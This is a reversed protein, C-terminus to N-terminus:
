IGDRMDELTEYCYSYHWFGKYKSLVAWMFQNDEDDIIEAIYMGGYKIIRRPTQNEKFKTKSLKIESLIECKNEEIFILEEENFTTELAYKM